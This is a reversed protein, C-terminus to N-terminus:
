PFAPVYADVGRPYATIYVFWALQKATHSNIFHTAVKSYTFTFVFLARNMSDRGTLTHFSCGMSLRLQKHLIAENCPVEGYM